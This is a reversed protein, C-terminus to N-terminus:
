TASVTSAGIAHLDYLEIYNYKRKRNVICSGVIYKKMDETINIHIWLQSSMSFTISMYSCDLPNTKWGIVDDKNKGKKGIQQYWNYSAPNLAPYDSPILFWNYQIKDKTENRAIISYYDFNKRKNIETIISEINGVDKDSCVTTLRYSSLEYINNGKKLQTSKNSFSGLSCNLDAGSRHSGDSQSSVSCGSANLIIANIDEWRAEKIPDDNILHYGQVCKTFNEALSALVSADMISVM